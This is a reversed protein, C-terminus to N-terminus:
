SNLKYITPSGFGWIKCFFAVRASSHYVATKPTYFTQIDNSIFGSYQIAIRCSNCKTLFMCKARSATESDSCVKITVSVHANYFKTFYTLCSNLNNLSKIM